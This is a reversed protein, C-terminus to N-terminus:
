APLASNLFPKLYGIYCSEPVRTDKTQFFAKCENILDGFYLYTKVKARRMSDESLCDPVLRLYTPRAIDMLHHIDRATTSTTKEHVVYSFGLTV